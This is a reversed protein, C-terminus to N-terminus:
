LFDFYSPEKYGTLGSPEKNTRAHVGHTRQPTKFDGSIVTTSQNQYKEWIGSIASESHNLSSFGITILLILYGDM